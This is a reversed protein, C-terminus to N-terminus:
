GFESLVYVVIANVLLVHEESLGTAPMDSRAQNLVDLFADFYSNHCRESLIRYASYLTLSGDSAEQEGIKNAMERVHVRGNEYRAGGFIREGEVASHPADLRALDISLGLYEKILHTNEMLYLFEILQEVMNRIILYSYRHYYHPTGCLDNLFVVDDTFKRIFSMRFLQTNEKESGIAGHYDKIADELAVSLAQITSEQIRM